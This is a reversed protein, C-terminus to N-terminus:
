WIGYFSYLHVSSNAVLCARLHSPKGRERRNALQHTFIHQLLAVFSHYFIYDEILENTFLQRFPHISPNGRFSFIGFYHIDIFSTTAATNPLMVSCFTISNHTPVM